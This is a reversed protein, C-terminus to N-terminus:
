NNSSRTTPVHAAARCEACRGHFRLDYATVDFGTASALESLREAFRAVGPDAADVPVDVARGCNDCILHDHHAVNADYRAPGHGFSIELAHGSEVLHALSRYVTAAGIGPVLERVRDLVEGANPHDYSGRLVDLVARRQPTLRLDPADPHV